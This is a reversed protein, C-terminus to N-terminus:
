RIVFFMHQIFVYLGGVNGGAIKGAAMGYRRGRYDQKGFVNQITRVMGASFIFILFFPSFIYAPLTEICAEM